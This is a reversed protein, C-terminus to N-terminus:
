RMIAYYFGDVIGQTGKGLTQKLFLGFMLLKGISLISMRM